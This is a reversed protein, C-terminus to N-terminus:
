VYKDTYLFCFGRTERCLVRDTRWSRSGFIKRDPGGVWDILVYRWMLKLKFFILFFIQTFQMKAVLSILFNKLLTNNTCRLPNHLNRKMALEGRCGKCARGLRHRIAGWIKSSTEELCFMNRKQPLTVRSLFVCAIKFRKAWRQVPAFILSHFLYTPWQM